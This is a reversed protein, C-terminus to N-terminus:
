QKQVNKLLLNPFLINNTLSIPKGNIVNTLAGIGYTLQYTKGGSYYKQKCYVYRSLVPETYDCPIERGGYKVKLVRISVTRVCKRNLHLCFNEAWGRIKTKRFLKNHEAILTMTIITSITM